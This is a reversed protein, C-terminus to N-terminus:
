RMTWRCLTTRPKMTRPADWVLLGSRNRHTSLHKWDAIDPIEAKVREIEKRTAELPHVDPHKLSALARVPLLTATNHLEVARRETQPKGLDAKVRERARDKRAQPLDTRGSPDVLPHHTLQLAVWAKRELDQVHARISGMHTLLALQCIRLHYPTARNNKHGKLHSLTIQSMGAARVFGNWRPGFLETLLEQTERRCEELIETGTKGGYGTPIYGLTYTEAQRFLFGLLPDATRHIVKRPNRTILKQGKKVPM